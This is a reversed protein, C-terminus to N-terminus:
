TQKTPWFFVYKRHDRSTKAWWFTLGREGRLDRLCIEVLLLMQFELSRFRGDTGDHGLRLVGLPKQIFMIRGWHSATGGHSLQLLCCNSKQNEVTKKQTKSTQKNINATLINIRGVVTKGKSREKSAHKQAARIFDQEWGWFQFVWVFIHLSMRSSCTSKGGTSKGTTRVLCKKWTVGAGFGDGADLNGAKPRM